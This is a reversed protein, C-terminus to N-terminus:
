VDLFADLVQHLPVVQLAAWLVGIHVTVQRSLARMACHPPLLVFSRSIHLVTQPTPSTSVQTQPDHVATQARPTGAAMASPQGADKAEATSTHAAKPVLHMVM